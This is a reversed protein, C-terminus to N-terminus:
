PFTYSNFSMKIVAQKASMLLNHQIRVYMCGHMCVYMCTYMEVKCEHMCAHMCVRLCEYMNLQRSPLKSHHKHVKCIWGNM